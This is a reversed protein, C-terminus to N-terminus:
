LVASISTLKLNGGNSWLRIPGKQSNRYIDVLSETIREGTIGIM